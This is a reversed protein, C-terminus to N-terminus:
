DLDSFIPHADDDDMRVSGDMYGKTKEIIKKAVTKQEDTVTEPLPQAITQRIIERARIFKKGYKKEVSCVHRYLWLIVNRLAVPGDRMYLDTDVLYIRPEEDGKKKGYVYQSANNIDALYIREKKTVTDLYYQAIAEYLKEVKETLEPTVEIKDLDSGDIKDVIAYIVDNDKSDKGVLFEVPVAIGYKKELEAYLKQGEEAIVVPDVDGKYRHELSKFSEMRVIKDPNGKIEFLKGRGQHVPSITSEILHDSFSIEPEPNSELNTEPNKM